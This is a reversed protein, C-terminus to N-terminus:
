SFLWQKTEPGFGMFVRVGDSLRNLFKGDKISGSPRSMVPDLLVLEQDRDQALYLGDASECWM